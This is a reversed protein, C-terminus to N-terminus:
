YKYNALLIDTSIPIILMTITAGSITYDNGVGHNLLLGNMYVMESGVIPTHALTFTANSGNEMGSVVFIGVSKAICLSDSAFIRESTSTFM